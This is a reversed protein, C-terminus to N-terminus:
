CRAVAFGGRGASVWRPSAADRPGGARAFFGVALDPLQSEGDIWASGGRRASSATLSSSSSLVSREMATLATRRQAGPPRGSGRVRGWRWARVCPAGGRSSGMGSERRCGVRAPGRSQVGCRPPSQCACSVGHNSHKATYPAHPFPDGEPAADVFVCTCVHECSLLPIARLAHLNPRVGGGIVSLGCSAPSRTQSNEEGGCAVNM